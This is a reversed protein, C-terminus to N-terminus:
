IVSTQNGSKETETENSFDVTNLRRHERYIQKWDDLSKSKNKKEKEWM